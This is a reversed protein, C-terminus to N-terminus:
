RLGSLDVFYGFFINFLKVKSNVISLSMRSKLIEIISNHGYKAALHMATYGEKDEEQTPAGEEILLEVLETHGGASAYHIPQQSTLQNTSFSIPIILIENKILNNM